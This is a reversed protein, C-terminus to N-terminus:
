KKEKLPLQALREAHDIEGSKVSYSFALLGIALFVLSIFVLM